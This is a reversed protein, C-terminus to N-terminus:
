TNISDWPPSCIWSSVQADPDSAVDVQFNFDDTLLLSEPSLIISELESVRWSKRIM